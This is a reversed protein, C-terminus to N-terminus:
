VEVGYLMKEYSEVAHQLHDAPRIWWSERVNANHPFKMLYVPIRAKMYSEAQRGNDEFAIIRRYERGMIHASKTKNTNMTFPVEPGFVDGLDCQLRRRTMNSLIRPRSTCFALAGLEHLRHVAQVAWPYPKIYEDYLIPKTPNDHEDRLTIQSILDRNVVHDDTFCSLDFSTVDAERKRINWRNKLYELVGGLFDYVVGDLDLVFLTDKM